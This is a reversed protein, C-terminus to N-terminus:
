CPSHRFNLEFSRFRSRPSSRCLGRLGVGVSRFHVGRPAHRHREGGRLPYDSRHTDHAYTYVYGHMSGKGFWEMRTPAARQRTAIERQRHRRANRREYTSEHACTRGKRAASAFAYRQRRAANERAPVEIAMEPSRTTARRYFEPHIGTGDDGDVRDLFLVGALTLRDVGSSWVPISSAGRRSWSDSSIALLASSVRM